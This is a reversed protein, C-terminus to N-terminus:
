QTSAPKSPTAAPTITATPSTAPTAAPATPAADDRVELENLEEVSAGTNKYFVVAPQGALNHCLTFHDEGYWLTDSFGYPFFRAHTFTRQTGHDELTLTFPDKDNKDSPAATKSQGTPPEPCHTSVITGSASELHPDAVGYPDLFLAVNAPRQAAPIQNWLAVAEDHDPGSWRDAVFKAFAAADSPRNAALLIRGTLLHYGARSPELAEAKRANDYASQNRHARFDAQALAIFAPAFKPNLETVHVLNARYTAPDPGPDAAPGAIMTRAFLSRYLTPDLQYARTFEKAAEADEGKSFLLFALEEHAPALTPDDRLASQILQEGTIPDHTGIHYAGLEYETQAVTLKRALFSKEDLHPPPPVSGAMFGLRNMYLSWAKDFSKYDGFVQTFAQKQPTGQQLLQFFQNLRAGGQMTEGFTMYHVLAWADAYFIQTKEEDHGFLSDRTDLIKEVPMLAQQRLVPFRETPAGIYIKSTQFRTYGYFEALGEDLWLPLWHSNLHMITHTYEHYVVQHAGTGWTDMRVLAFQKEWGHHFEGAVNEHHKFLQPELQKATDLDRAAVITLPAGSELRFGPFRTEFVYRMQEFEFAVDRADHESADTLVRFHPSTVETWPKQEARAALTALFAVTALLLPTRFRLM